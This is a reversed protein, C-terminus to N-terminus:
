SRGHAEVIPSIPSINGIRDSTAENHSCGTETLVTPFQKSPESASFTSPTPHDWELELVSAASTRLAAPSPGVQASRDSATRRTVLNQPPLWVTVGTPALTACLSRAWTALTALRGRGEGEGGTAWGHVGADVIADHPYCRYGM